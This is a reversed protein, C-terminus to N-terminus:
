ASVIRQTVVIGICLSAVLALDVSESGERRDVRSVCGWVAGGDEHRRGGKLGKKSIRRGTGQGM